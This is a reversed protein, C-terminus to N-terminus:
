IDKRLYNFDDLLKQEAPKRDYLEQTDLYTKMYIAYLDCHKWISNGCKRIVYTIVIVAIFMIKLIM